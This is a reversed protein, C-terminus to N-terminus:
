SVLECGEPPPIESSSPIGEGWPDELQQATFTDVMYDNECPTDVPVMTTSLEAFKLAYAMGSLWAPTLQAGHAPRGIRGWLENRAKSDMQKQEQIIREMVLVFVGGM